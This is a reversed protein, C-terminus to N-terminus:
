RNRVSNRSSIRLIEKMSIQCYMFYYNLLVIMFKGYDHQEVKMMDVGNIEDSLNPQMMKMCAYGEQSLPPETETDPGEDSSSTIGNHQHEEM